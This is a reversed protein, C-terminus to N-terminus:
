SIAMYWSNSKSFFHCRESYDELGIVVSFLTETLAYGNGISFVVKAVILRQVSLLVSVGMVSYSFVHFVRDICWFLGTGCGISLDVPKCPTPRGEIVMAWSLVFFGLSTDGGVVWYM